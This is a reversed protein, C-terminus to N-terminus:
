VNFLFTIVDGDQVKYGKGELGLLGRKRVEAVSGCEVLNDYKIVEARIFGREMDSHIKGAAKVAETDQPVSWARVEESVTTFFSVLGLIQYSLRLIRAIAPEGAGLEARFTEAEDEELQSLEEELKGCVVAGRVGPRHHREELEKELEVARDLEDEGINLVLLLPKATLFQYGSLARREEQDFPQERIGVEQELGERIRDMLAQERLLAEREQARAGKLSVELRKRRRELIALDSYTLEMSMTSVDREPDVSGEQHPVSPDDFRRVVHLLADAQSLYSLLQASFGESKGLGRPTFPVDLYRVEAPVVRKPQFIGALGDLRHDPVKAVGVDIRDGHSGHGSAEADGRTLCNFITSKGTRPLGIIGIDM